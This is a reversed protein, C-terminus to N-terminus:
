QFARSSNVHCVLIAAVMQSRDLLRAEVRVSVVEAAIIGVRYRIVHPMVFQLPDLNLDDTKLGLNQLDKLRNRFTYLGYISVALALVDLFAKHWFPMRQMRALQQKHGVISVRTAMVVPILMMLFSVGAAVAGYLFAQDNLHVTM